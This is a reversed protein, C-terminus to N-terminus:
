RITELPAPAVPRSARPRDEILAPRLLLRVGAHVPIALAAGTLSVVAIDRIVLPSVEAELGLMLQLFAFCLAALLTLGGGLLAVVGRTPRGLSERYRGAVYGVAILTLATAGMTELLLMDILLGVWFGVVAGTVSGGLLGLSMVVLVAFDPSAGLISIKAFFSLEALVTFLILAAVRVVISKTLIM